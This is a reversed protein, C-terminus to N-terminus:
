SEDYLTLTREPALRVFRKTSVPLLEFDEPLSAVQRSEKLYAAELDAVHAALLQSQYEVNKRATVNFVTASIAYTYALILVFFAIALSMLVRKEIPNTVFLITKM